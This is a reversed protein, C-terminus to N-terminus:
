ANTDEEDNSNPVIEPKTQINWAVYETQLFAGFLAIIAAGILSINETDFGAIKGITVIFTLLAPLAIRQLYKCVDYIKSNKIIM